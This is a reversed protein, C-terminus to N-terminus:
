ERVETGGGESVRREVAGVVLLFCSFSFSFDSM